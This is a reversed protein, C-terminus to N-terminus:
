VRVPTVRKKDETIIPTRQSLTPTFDAKIKPESIPPIAKKRRAIRRLSQYVKHRVFHPMNQPMNQPM